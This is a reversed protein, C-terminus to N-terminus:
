ARHEKHHTEIRAIAATLLDRLLRAGRVSLAVEAYERGAHGLKLEEVEILVLGDTGTHVGAMTERRPSHADIIGPGAESYTVGAM